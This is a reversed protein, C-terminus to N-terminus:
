IYIYMYVYMNVHMYIHLHEYTSPPILHSRNTPKKFNYTEKAISGLLLSSIRCFLGIIKLLRSITAVVYTCSEHKTWIHCYLCFDVKAGDANEAWHECHACWSYIYIYGIYLWIYVYNYIHISIYIYMYVYKYIYMYTHICIYIYIYICVCVCIYM